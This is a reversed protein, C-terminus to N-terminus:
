RYPNPEARWGCSYCRAATPYLTLRSGCSPCPIVAM